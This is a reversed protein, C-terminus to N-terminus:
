APASTQNGHVQLALKASRISELFAKFCCNAQVGKETNPIASFFARSGVVILKHRARTIAVNFRNPNNLFESMVHDPDSSTFGFLIVDREAGQVREVTDILPLETEKGILGALRKVIANNQARHPSIIALQDPNLQFRNMLRYALRAMIDVETESEQHCGQHDAVVLVVPKEPDLIQDLLDNTNPTQNKTNQAKHKTKPPDPPGLPSKLILRSNANGPAARLTGEYWTRSPFECIAKNMRYTLTLRVRQDPDYSDLLHELVSKRLDATEEAEEYTGLVIPPLQNVDGLFLFNGKGYILSLLAQPVLIQSAEDFIVWDFFRPFTGHRSEFLGYLGYGTAGLILYPSASIDERNDSPEVQLCSVQSRESETESEVRPANWRGWKVCRAPFDELRYANVLKVVKLLVQDIAQHTLASVAIRMPRGEEQANRILAILIWGLLHTKGTGPPGEILSLAYRFPLKLAKQQDANLHAESGENGLWGRAWSLLDGSQRETRTGSFLGSLPHPEDESFVTQVVNILKPTNWDSADEELSYAIRKSVSLRGQRSLLSVRGANRDYNKLIVSFGSQLNDAGDPALKLFDSERFKSVKDKQILEFNYLFRGEEDLMTGAFILPGIARFREVREELPYAQLALIDAEQRRREEEVFRLYATMRTDKSRIDWEEQELDSKLYNLAFRWLREMLLLADEPSLNEDGHFLSEPPEPEPELGLVRSMSFLTLNGPVPLEFHNRFLQRIDTWHSHPALEQLTERVWAGWHLIHPGDGYGGGEEWVRLFRSSFDQYANEKELEWIHSEKLEGKNLVRWGLVGPRSSVPDRILHLFIATSINKPFLRTRKERLAVRNSLFASLHGQIREKQHPSFGNNTGADSIEGGIEGFWESASEITNLGLRRLRWLQGPTLQPLFQIDETSLAENYCFEFFDCTACHGQLHWGAESPPHSLHEGMSQLLVPFAAMYPRLDFAHDQHAESEGPTILFGTEAVSGQIPITQSRIFSKLLLAYFAVQWKQYYRPATSSKIDGAEFVPGRKGRFIRVLDPIGVGSRGADWEGRSSLKDGPLIFVGQSLYFPKESGAEAKHILSQLQTVSEEFREKLGRPRGQSDNEEITILTESQRILDNLVDKEYRRGREMRLMALENDVRASRPQEDPPLFSLSFWRECQQHRFYEGIITGTLPRSTYPADSVSFNRDPARRQKEWTLLSEEESAPEIILRTERKSERRHLDFIGPDGSVIESSEESYRIFAEAIRRDYLFDTLEEILLAPPLTSCFSNLSFPALLMKFHRKAWLLFTKRTTPLRLRTFDIWHSCEIGIEDSDVYLDDQKTEKIAWQLILNGVSGLFTRYRYFGINGRVVEIGNALMVAPRNLEHHLLKRTRSFLGAEKEPDAPSKQGTKFLTRISQAVDYSVHSGAGLWLIEKKDIHRAPHALVRKREGEDIELIRLRKGAIHIRDGPDLQRVVSKPLDAIAEGSLELTYDEETEPFNCWIQRDFLCNRYRWGGQFIGDVRTKRLWGRQGLSDFIAQMAHESVPEQTHSFLSQIAPLSIRKKEYLCSIIQQSMVSLLTKPLPSEVTGQRALRLLGLFRLLQEGAREGRCVGWFHIGKQRRNSRGIRQLFASVSDPPEYLLVADVDGVDIGLELTSTAICLAHNRRRFRHEAAQREKTKLNSYHLESVGRFRGQRNAISFLLDCRGRTNAFILIKRYKWINYLDDLLATFEDTEDKLHILHPVIDRRVNEIIRVTDPRFEFFRIVADVDAITASIAIKQLPESSRRELRKMLYSLQRGRYQYVFPHVEDIVVMRVRSLFGKLDPNSSGLMVDLSEPTTLMVDPHEGGARKIDGTRIALRLGLRQTLISEFRRLLDLALARTPVICLLAETRKSRIIRETCPALVAESKGSGTASQLILDKGKLVPAITQKQVPRLHSFGGYFARYTNALELLPSDTMKKEEWYGNKVKRV